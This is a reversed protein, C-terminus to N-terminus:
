PRLKKFMVYADVFGQEPHRFADPLTGVIEFGLSQWLRIAGENTSVVFNFQMGLYGHDLAIRQSHLCMDSAVGRGRAEASVIYGCNCIHDGLAPQNPKIFYTGLIAGDDDLAVFTEAPVTVWFEYAESKRIKPSVTYTMGARFVPEVFLWVKDWDKQEVLRIMTM